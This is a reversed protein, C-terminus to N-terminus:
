LLYLQHTHFPTISPQLLFFYDLLAFYADTSFPPPCNFYCRSFLISYFTSFRLLSPQYPKSTFLCARLVVCSPCSRVCVAESYPSFLVPTRRHSRLGTAPSLHLLSLIPRPRPGNLTLMYTACTTLSPSFCCFILLFFRLSRSLPFLFKLFRVCQTQHRKLMKIKLVQFYLTQRAFFLWFLLFFCDNFSHINLNFAIHFFLFFFHSVMVVVNEHNYMLFLLGCFFLFSILLYLYLILTKKLVICCVLLPTEKKRM